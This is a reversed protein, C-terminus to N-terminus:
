YTTYSEDSFKEVPIKPFKQFLFSVGEFNRKLLSGKKFIFNFCKSDKSILYKGNLFQEVQKETLEVNSNKVVFALPLEGATEDPLGVVAVDKIKPNTL